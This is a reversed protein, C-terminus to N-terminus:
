HPVHPISQKKTARFAKWPTVCRFLTPEVGDHDTTSSSKDIKRRERELLGRREELNRRNVQRIWFQQGFIFKKMEENLKMHVKEKVPIKSRENKHELNRVSPFYKADWM